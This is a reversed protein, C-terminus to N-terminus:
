FLRTYIKFKVKNSSLDIMDEWIKILILTTIKKFFYKMRYKM